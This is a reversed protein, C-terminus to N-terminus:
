REDTIGRKAKDKNIIRVMKAVSEELSRDNLVFYDILHSKEFTSFEESEQMYNAQWANFDGRKKARERLDSFPVTVMITVLNIDM